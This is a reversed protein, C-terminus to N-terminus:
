QEVYWFTLETGAVYAGLDDDHVPPAFNSVNDSVYARQVQLTGMTGKFGDLKTAGLGVATRIANRVADAQAESSGWAELQFTAKCPGTSGETLTRVRDSGSLSMAVYPTPDGQTAKQPRIRAGVLSSLTADSALFQQLAEAATM